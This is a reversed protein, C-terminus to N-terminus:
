KKLRNKIRLVALTQSESPIKKQGFDFDKYAMWVSEPTYWGNEDAKSFITDCMESFRKDHHTWSFRSLVEGVHLIDYWVFPYKLKKFDSGMAFLFYKIEKQKEWHHLLMETGYHCAKSNKHESSLSLARLSILTAFPCPHIKKGPGKHKSNSAKCRWGNEDALSALLNVAQKVNKDNEYGFALLAHLILPFDCLIWIWEPRDNGGFVRPILVQTQFGGDESQHSLLKQCVAAINKNQRDLGIDALFGIKQVIHKADNHRKLPYGPWSKCENIIKKILPHNATTKKLDLIEGSNPPLKLFEQFLALRIWPKESKKLENFILMDSNTKIKNKM